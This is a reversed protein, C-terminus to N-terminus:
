ELRLARRCGRFSRRRWCFNRVVLEVREDRGDSEIGIWEEGLGEGRGGIREFDNLEELPELLVGRQLVFCEGVGDGLLRPVWANLSEGGEGIDDLSEGVVDLPGSVEAVCKESLLSLDHICDLSHALFSLVFSIQFRGLLLLYFGLDDFVFTDDHDLLRIGLDDVHGRIIGDHDIARRDVGIGGDIIRRGSVIRGTEGDRKADAYHHACHPASAPTPAATPAAVINVNILVIIEVAVGINAAAVPRTANTSDATDTAYSSHAPNATYSSHATDTSYSACTAGSSDTTDASSTTGASYTTCSAYTVGSSYTSDASSATGAADTARTTRRL